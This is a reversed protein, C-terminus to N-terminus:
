HVGGVIQGPKTDDIVFEEFFHDAHIGARTSIGLPTKTGVIREGERLRQACMECCEPGRFEWFKSDDMFSRFHTTDWFHAGRWVQFFILDVLSGNAARWAPINWLYTVHKTM